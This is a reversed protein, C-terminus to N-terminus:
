TAARLGQSSPTTRTAVAAPLAITVTSGRVSVAGGHREATARVIALGLGLGLGSGPRARPTPPWLREFGHELTTPISARAKTPLPWRRRATPWLSRSPSM